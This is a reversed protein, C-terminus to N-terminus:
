LAQNQPQRLCGTLSQASAPWALMAAGQALNKGRALAALLRAVGRSCDITVAM